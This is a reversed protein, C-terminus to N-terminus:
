RKIANIVFWRNTEVYDDSIIQMNLEQLYNKIGDYRDRNESIIMEGDYELVRHGELLYDKWNFGMLSQSYICIKISEDENPLNSIDCETSGNYSVYDYGTIDFKSNEKFHHKILNRGCGLDLIKLKHKTRTDLYKIIKNIPIDDQNDYSTFSIDRANHYEHWLNNNKNFM